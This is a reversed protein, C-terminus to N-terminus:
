NHPWDRWHTPRIHHVQKNTEADLWGRDGLQRCPFVVVQTATGNIVALELDRDFPATDIQKWEMISIIACEAPRGRHDLDSSM